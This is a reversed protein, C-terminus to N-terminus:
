GAGAEGEPVPVAGQLGRLLLAVTARCWADREAQGMVSGAFSARRQPVGVVMTQFQEAAFRAQEARLGPRHARLLAAVRVIGVDMGAQQVIASLEPLRGAEATLLAHMALASPTLAVDLMRQGSALLGAELGETADLLEEFGDLWAQLLMRMVAQFVASKGSFRAYFTRKSIGAAAAIAEVSTAAYGDRLFLSSAAAVIRDGILAADAATPRGGQGKGARDRAELGLRM